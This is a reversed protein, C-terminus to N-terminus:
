PSPILMSRIAIFCAVWLALQLGNTQFIRMKAPLAFTPLRAAIADIPKVLLNLLPVFILKDLYAVAFIPQGEVTLETLRGLLTYALMASLGYLVGYVSRGFSTSPSTAPDTILLMMGLFVAIPIATQEVAYFLTGTMQQYVAGAAIVSVASATTVLVTPFLLQVVVGLAFVVEYRYPPLRLSQAVELGRALNSRGLLVIIYSTIALGFGSPNFIHTRVGQREWKLWERSLLALACISFQLLFASDVFWQLLNTSLVIPVVGFGARYSRHIQWGLCIELLYAFLLQLVILPAQQWFPPWCAAWYGYIVLQVSLQVYHSRKVWPLITLRQGARHARRLFLLWAAFVLTLVWITWSLAPGAQTMRPLLSLSAFSILLLAPWLFIRTMPAAPESQEEQAPSIPQNQPSSTM